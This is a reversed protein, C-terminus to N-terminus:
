FHTENEEAADGRTKIQGLAFKFKLDLTDHGCGECKTTFAIGVEFLLGCSKALECQTSM